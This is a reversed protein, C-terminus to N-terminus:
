SKVQLVLIDFPIFIEFVLFSLAISVLCVFINNRKTYVLQMYEAIGCGRIFDMFVGKDYMKIANDGTNRLLNENCNM